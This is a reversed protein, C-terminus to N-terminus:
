LAGWADELWSFGVGVAYAERAAAYFAASVRQESRAYDPSPRLVRATRSTARAERQLLVAAEMANM